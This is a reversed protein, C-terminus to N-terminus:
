KGQLLENILEAKPPPGVLKRYAAYEAIAAATASTLDLPVVGTMGVLFEEGIEDLVMYNGFDEAERRSMPAFVRLTRAPQPDDPM